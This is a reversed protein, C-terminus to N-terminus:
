LIIVFCDVHCLPSAEFMEIVPLVALDSLVCLVKTM